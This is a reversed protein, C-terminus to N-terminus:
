GETGEMLDSEMQVVDLIGVLGRLDDRTLAIEAWWDPRADDDMRVVLVGPYVLARATLRGRGKISLNTEM